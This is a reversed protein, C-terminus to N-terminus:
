GAPSAPKDHADSLENIVKEWLATDQAGQVVYHNGIVFCPVGSVGRERASADRDQIDKVDADSELLRRTVDADMGAGTAIDILTDHDSIDQGERFYAKFLRDVVANQKGELAAWHLLRHANLTSPTREIGEFNIEIGAAEAAQAIAGYVKVAGEKGGFKAELYERRDMGEAPMEPNLQFPHWEIVFDHEPHKELARDLKTKGIYCWPCIPDSIIDLKTM